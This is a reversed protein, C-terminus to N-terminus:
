KPLVLAKADPLLLSVLKAKQLAAIVVSSLATAPMTIADLLFHMAQTYKKVGICCYGAYYFYSSFDFGPGPRANSGRTDVEFMPHSIAYESGLDLM